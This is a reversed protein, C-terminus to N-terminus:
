HFLQCVNRGGVCFGKTNSELSMNYEGVHAVFLSLERSILTILSHLSCTHFFPPLVAAAALVGNEKVSQDRPLDTSSCSFRFIMGLRVDLMQGFLWGWEEVRMGKGNESTPPGSTTRLTPILFLMLWEIAPPPPYKIQEVLM